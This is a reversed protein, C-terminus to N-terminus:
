SSQRAQTSAAQVVRLLVEHVPQSQERRLIENALYEKQKENKVCNKNGKWDGDGWLQAIGSGPDNEALQLGTPPSSPNLSQRHHVRLFNDKATKLFIWKLGPKHARDYGQATIGHAIVLETQDNGVPKAQGADWNAYIDCLHAIYGVSVKSETRACTWDTKSETRGCTM